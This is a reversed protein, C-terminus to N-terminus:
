GISHIMSITLYSVSSIQIPDVIKNSVVSIMSLRNKRPHRRLYTKDEVKYAVIVV